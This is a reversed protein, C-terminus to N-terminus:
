VRIRVRTDGSLCTLLDDQISPERRRHLTIWRTARALQHHLDGSRDLDVPSALPTNRLREVLENGGRHGAERFIGPITRKIVLRGDVAVAQHAMSDDARLSVRGLRRLEEHDIAFEA